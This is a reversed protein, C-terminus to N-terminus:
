PLVRWVRANRVDSDEIARTTPVSYRALEVLGTKPMFTRMPDGLYVPTGDAAMERLWAIMREAPEKEYCIDGAFIMDWGRNPGGVLDETVLELTVGNAAANAEAAAIAFRDIDCATVRAAGAQAAAIAVLGGGTAFDLIRKGRVPAPNDLIFRALAQGGAWAFAWFPPPLELAELTAETAQWLETVETAQYLRIEPILPPALLETHDRLFANPDLQPAGTAMM